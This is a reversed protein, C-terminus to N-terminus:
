RDYYPKDQSRDCILLHDMIWYIKGGGMKGCMLYIENTPYLYTDSFPRISSYELDQKNKNVEKRIIKDAEKVEPTNLKM